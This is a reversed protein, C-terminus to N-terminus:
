IEKINGSKTFSFHPKKQSINGLYFRKGAILNENFFNFKGGEPVFPRGVDAVELVLESSLSSLFLLMDSLFFNLFRPVGFLLVHHQVVVVVAM